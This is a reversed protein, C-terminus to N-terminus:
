LNRRTQAATDFQGAEIKPLLTGLLRMGECHLASMAALMTEGRASVYATQALIPGTDIKEDVMHLTVGLSPPSDMMAYFVPVPGRHSPLLASHVNLTGLKPIALVPAKFIQEFYCSAIIDIDLRRLLSQMEAGNVDSVPASEIDFEQCLRVLSAQASLKAGIWRPILFNCTLYLSFHLGSRTLNRWADQLLGGPPPRCSLGLFVIQEHHARIFAGIAEHSAVSDLTFLAM